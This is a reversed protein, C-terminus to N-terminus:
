AEPIALLLGYTAAASGAFLARREDVSCSKAIRKFANWGTGYRFRGADVPYNSEFMCRSAGFAVICEEFYPAWERALQESSPFAALDHTHAGTIPMGLGGLKVSINPRQALQRINQRWVPFRENRRAAFSGVGLPTGTHDLIIRLDPCADAFQALEGLQPELLMVDLSLGLRGACRAGAQIKTDLLLGAPATNWIEPDHSVTYRLGRFRGNGARSLAAIADEVREGASLDAHGVLAAAVRAPGFIGSEAMAAMGNAFEVEGAARLAEPGDRRYMTGSEIFVTALLNHGHDVDAVFDELLYHARKRLVALSERIWGAAQDEGAFYTAPLVWLHHHSDIILLNPDLAEERAADAARAVVPALLSGALLSRRDLRM